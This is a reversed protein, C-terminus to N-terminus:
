RQRWNVILTFPATRRDAEPMLVALGRGDPTVDYHNRTDQWLQELGTDLVVKPRAARFSPRTTIEVSMLKRDAAVFFLERGGCCWRPDNGGGTSVRFVQSPDPFARVYIEFRGSEDSAYALYRGDPSLQSQGENAPTAIVPFEGSPDDPRVAWIDFKTAASVRMFTLYGDDKRWSDLYTARLALPQAAADANTLLREMASPARFGGSLYRLRDGAASWLPSYAIRETTLPRGAGTAVDFLWLRIQEGEDIGLALSRADPSLTPNSLYAPDGLTRVVRRSPRDFWVLKHRESEGSRAVLLGTASVSFDAHFAQDGFQLVGRAVPLPEGQVELRDLDLRVAVLQDFGKVYLLYGDPSYAASSYVAVLRRVAGTDLDKIYIGYQEGNASYDTYLVRRGGPLFHPWAHGEKFESGLVTEPVPVGTSAPLRMLPAGRDPAFLIDGQENWAGGLGEPAAALDTTERTALALCKLRGGAFFGVRDGKTSWFPFSAGDTGPLRDAALSDLQQIWLRTGAAERAAFVVSKGDPSIVLSQVIAGPPPAIAFRGMPAVASLQTRASRFGPSITLAITLLLASVPGVRSKWRRDGSTQPQPITQGRSRKQWWEDIEDTYAYVSGLKAHLHRHVPLGERREWRRVTTVDRNLYHSIAKWADLRRRAGGQPGSGTAPM